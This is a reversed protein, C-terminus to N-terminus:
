KEDNKSVRNYLVATVQGFYFVIFLNFLNKYLNDSSSVSAIIEFMWILFSTSIIACILPLIFKLLTRLM